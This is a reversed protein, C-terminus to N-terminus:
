RNENRVPMNLSKRIKVSKGENDFSLEDSLHYLM